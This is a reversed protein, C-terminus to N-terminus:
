MCPIFEVMFFLAVILKVTFVGTFKLKREMDGVSLRAGGLCRPILHVYTYPICVYKELLRTILLLGSSWSCDRGWGLHKYIEPVRTILDRAKNKSLKRTCTSTGYLKKKNLTEM